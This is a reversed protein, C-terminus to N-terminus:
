EAVGWWGSGFHQFLNEDGELEALIAQRTAQVGEAELATEITSVRKRGENDLYLFIKGALGSSHVVCDKSNATPQDITEGEEDCGNAANVVLQLAELTRKKAEYQRRTEAFEEDLAEIQTAVHLPTLDNIGELVRAIKADERADEDADDIKDETPDYVMPLIEEPEPQYVRRVLPLPPPLTPTADLRPFLRRLEGAEVTITLRPRQRDVACTQCPWLTCLHGEDCRRPPNCATLGSARLDGSTMPYGRVHPPSLNKRQSEM